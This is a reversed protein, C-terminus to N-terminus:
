NIRSADYLFHYIEEKVRRNNIILSKFWSFNTKFDNYEIKRYEINM